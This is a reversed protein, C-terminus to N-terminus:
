YSIIGLRVERLDVKWVVIFLWNLFRIESCEIERKLLDVDDEFLVLNRLM